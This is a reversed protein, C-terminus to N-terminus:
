NRNPHCLIPLSSPLLSTCKKMTLPHGTKTHRPGLEKQWQETTPPTSLIRKLTSQVSKYILTTSPDISSSAPHYNTESMVLLIAKKRQLITILIQIPLHVAWQIIFMLHSRRGQSRQFSPSSLQLILSTSAKPCVQFMERTPQDFVGEEADSFAFGEPLEVEIGTLVKWKPGKKLHEPVIIDQYSFTNNNIKTVSPHSSDLLADFIICKNPNKPLKTHVGLKNFIDQLENKSPKGNQKYKVTITTFNPATEENNAKTAELM